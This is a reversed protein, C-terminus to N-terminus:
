ESPEPLSVGDDHGLIPEADLLDLMRTLHDRLARVEDPQLDVGDGCWSLGLVGEDWDDDVSLALWETVRM